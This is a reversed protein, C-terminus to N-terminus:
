VSSLNSIATARDEFISFLTDVNTTKLIDKIKQNAGCIVLNCHEKKTRKLLYILVAIGVSAIHTTESLDVVVNKAGQEILAFYDKMLTREQHTTIDDLNMSLITVNDQQEVRCISEDM